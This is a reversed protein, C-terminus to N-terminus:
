QNGGQNQPQTSQGSNDDQPSSASLAAQRAAAALNLRAVTQFVLPAEAPTGVTAESADDEKKRPRPNTELWLTIRVADPMGDLNTRERQSSQPKGTQEADGWSDYWDWGDFYEFRLGQVGRALEEKSGGSLSDLAIRPNLRRYLCLLGTEPDKDLYLSEQCFDGENRRRPTYNHTAFDLNDAPTQGMLRHMGLFDSNPDLPCANRLDAAMLSMAVRANQLVEVRPEVAKQTSIAANLCMYASVLILAMLSGSIVVEILTFGRAVGRRAMSAFADRKQRLKM